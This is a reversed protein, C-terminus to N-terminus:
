SKEIFRRRNASTFIRFAKRYKVLNTEKLQWIDKYLDFARIFQKFKTSQELKYHSLSYKYNDSIWALIDFDSSLDLELPVEKHIPIFANFTLKKLISLEKLFTDNIQFGLNQLLLQGLNSIEDIIQEFKENILLNIQINRRLDYFGLIEKNSAILEQVYSVVDEPTDKLFKRIGEEYEKAADIITPCVDKNNVAEMLLKSTKLGNCEFFFLLEKLFSRYHSFDFLFIFRLTQFHEESSITSNSVVFEDIEINEFAPHRLYGNEAMAFMTKVQYKQKNDPREMITGHLIQLPMIEISEFRYNILKDISNMFSQITEGPLMFILESVLILGKDRAFKVTVEIEENKLNVRQINKLVIPTMSQFSVCLPIIDSMLINIRKIRETPHKDTYISGSQPFGTKEKLNIVYEAIELDRPLVGFNEDAFRLFSNISNKAVYNIEEKIRDIHFPRVKNWTDRGSVCYTCRYPCGRSTQISAMYDKDKLFKDMYGGLYPSPIDNIDGDFRDIIEGWIDGDEPNVSLCGRIPKDLMKKSNSISMRAKVLNYIPLEGENPLYFDIFTNDKISKELIEPYISVDPGGVATISDQYNKKIYLATKLTLQTNWCYSGFAAIQPPKGDKLAEYIEEFHRFLKIDIDNGFKKKLYAAVYGMGIPISNRLYRFYTNQLDALYVIM